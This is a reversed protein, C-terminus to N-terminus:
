EKVNLQREVITGNCNLKLKATTSETIGKPVVFTLESDGPQFGETSAEQGVYMASKGSKGNADDYKYPKVTKCTVKKAKTKGKSEVQWEM